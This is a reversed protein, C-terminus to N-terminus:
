IFPAVTHCEICIDREFDLRAFYKKEGGHAYHCTICTIVGNDLTPLNPPVRTKQTNSSIGVPHSIGQAHCEVCVDIQSVKPPLFGEGHRAKEEEEETIKLTLKVPESATSLIFTKGGEAKIPRADKIVPFTRDSASSAAVSSVSAGETTFTRDDSRVVGGYVDNAVVRYHYRTDKKLATLKVSHERSYVSEYASTEGYEVTTGYEVASSAYGDTTWAITAEPFVGQRVDEVRIDSINIAPNGNLSESIGSPNVYLQWPRSRKGSRDTATVTVVYVSGATPTKLPFLVEEKFDSSSVVAWPYLDKGLIIHCVGCKEDVVTHRYPFGMAERHVDGHCGKCAEYDDDGGYSAAASVHHPIRYSLHYLFTTLVMLLFFGKLYVGFRKKFLGPGWGPEKGRANMLM